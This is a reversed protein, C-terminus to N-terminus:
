LGLTTVAWVIPCGDDTQISWLTLHIAKGCIPTSTLLFRFHIIKIDKSTQKQVIVALAERL